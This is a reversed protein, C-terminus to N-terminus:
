FSLIANLLFFSHLRGTEVVGAALPNFNVAIISPELSVKLEFEAHGINWQHDYLTEGLFIPHDDVTYSITYENILVTKGV